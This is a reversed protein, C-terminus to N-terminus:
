SLRVASRASIGNSGRRWAPAHACSRTSRCLPSRSGLSKSRRSPLQGPQQAQVNPSSPCRRQALKVTAGLRSAPATRRRSSRGSPPHGWSLVRATTACWTWNAHHRCYCCDCIAATLRHSHPPPLPACCVKGKSPGQPCLAYHQSTNKRMLMPDRGPAAHTQVDWVATYVAPTTLHAEWREESQGSSPTQGLDVASPDITVPPQKSGPPVPLMHCLTIEGSKVDTKIYWSTSENLRYIQTVNDGDPYVNTIRWRCAIRPTHSTLWRCHSAHKNSASDATGSALFTLTSTLTIRNWSNAMSSLRSPATPPSSSSL